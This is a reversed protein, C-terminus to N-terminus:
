RLRGSSRHPIGEPRIRGAAPGFAALYVHGAILAALAFTALVHLDRARQVLENDFWWWAYMPAGTITLIALGIAVLAALLKQGANFRRPNPRAESFTSLFVDFPRRFWEWDAREWFSLEREVQRVDGWRLVSIAVAAVVLLVAAVLHSTRVWFRQGAVQSLWPVYMVVGTFLLVLVTAAVSWHLTKETASARTPTM